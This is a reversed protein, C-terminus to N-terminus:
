GVATTRHADFPHDILAETKAVFASTNPLEAHVDFAAEDRWRSHIFFQRPDRTSRFAGIMLCGPENRAFFVQEELAKLVADELNERAHFRAFIFVEM